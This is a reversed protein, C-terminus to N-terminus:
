IHRQIQRLMQSRRHTVVASQESEIRILLRLQLGDKPLHPRAVLVLGRRLLHAEQLEPQRRQRIDALRGQHTQAFCSLLSHGGRLLPNLLLLMTPCPNPPPLTSGCASFTLTTLSLLAITSIRM